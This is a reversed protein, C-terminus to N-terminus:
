YFTHALACKTIFYMRPLSERALFHMQYYFVDPAIIGALSPSKRAALQKLCSPDQVNLDFFM